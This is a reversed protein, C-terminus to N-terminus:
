SIGLGHFSLSSLSLFSSSSLLVSLIQHACPKVPLLKAPTLLSPPTFLLVSRSRSIFHFAPSVLLCTTDPILDAVSVVDTSGLNWAGYLSYFLFYYNQPISGSLFKEALMADALMDFGMRQFVGNVFTWKVV